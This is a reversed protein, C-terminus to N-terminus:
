RLTLACGASLSPPLEAQDPDPYPRTGRAAVRVDHAGARGGALDLAPAQAIAGSSALRRGDVSWEYEFLDGFPPLVYATLTVLDARGPASPTM